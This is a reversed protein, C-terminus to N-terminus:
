HPHSLAGLALAGVLWLTLLVWLLLLFDAAARVRRRRRAKTRPYLDSGNVELKGDPQGM